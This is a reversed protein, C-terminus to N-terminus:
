SSLASFLSQLEEDVQDRRTITQAIEDRLLEQCRKRLRHVSVKVAGETMGLELAVDRYPISSGEAGLYVKLCGFLKQKNMDSYDAELRTMTRELVTLAWSKEYLKEPSLHHCPERAYQDEANQFDLSLHKKGGGRKLTHARDYENALFHKMATLLFSRFRGPEPDVKRLYRKELMQAFFMQTYDEANHTNHGRRRLYAYLPFWYNKCLISLAQEHQPSSSDGAALVLSWHTTAFRSTDAPTSHTDTKDPM